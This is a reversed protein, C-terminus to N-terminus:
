AEFRKNEGSRARLHRGKETGSHLRGAEADTGRRRQISVRAGSAIEVTGHDDKGKDTYIKIRIYHTLVTSPEGGEARDEVRVDWFIAEADAAADVKPTKRTLDAREVPMWDASFCMVTMFIATLFKM